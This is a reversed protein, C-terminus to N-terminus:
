GHKAKRSLYEGLSSGQPNSSMSREVASREAEEPLDGAGVRARIMRELEDDPTLLSSQVLLPLSSLSEALADVDLGTHVLRPLKSPSVDGYNFKILRGITGAGRRDEGSVVSAVYDAINLASRRFLSM